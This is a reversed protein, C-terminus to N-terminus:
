GGAARVLALIGAKIPEPLRPWADLIAALEPAINPNTLSPAGFEAGGPELLATKADTEHTTRSEKAGSKDGFLGEALVDFPQRM